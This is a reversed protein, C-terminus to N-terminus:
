DDDGYQRRDRMLQNIQDERIVDLTFTLHGAAEAPDLGDLDFWRVVKGDASLGVHVTVHGTEMVNEATDM